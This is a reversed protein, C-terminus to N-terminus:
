LAVLSNTDIFKQIDSMVSFINEEDLEARLVYFYVDADSPTVAITSNNESITLLLTHHPDREKCKMVESIDESDFNMAALFDTVSNNIEYTKM